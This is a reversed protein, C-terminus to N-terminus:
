TLHGCRFSREHYFNHEHGDDKQLQRSKSGNTTDPYGVIEEPVARRREEVADVTTNTIQRQDAEAQRSRALQAELAAVRRRLDANEETLQEWSKEQDNM